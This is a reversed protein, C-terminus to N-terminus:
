EVLGSSNGMSHCKDGKLRADGILREYDSLLQLPSHTAFLSAMKAGLLYEPWFEEKWTEWYPIEDSIYFANLYM